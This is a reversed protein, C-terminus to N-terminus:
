KCSAFMNRLMNLYHIIIGRLDREKMCRLSFNLITKKSFLLNVM